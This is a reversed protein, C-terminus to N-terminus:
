PSTGCGHAEYLQTLEASMLGGILALAGGVASTVGLGLNWDEAKQPDTIGDVIPIMTSSAAGLAGGVVGVTSFAVHQQDLMACTPDAPSPGSVIGCGVVLVLPLMKLM